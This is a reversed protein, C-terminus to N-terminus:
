DHAQEKEFRYFADHLWGPMSASKLLQFEEETLRSRVMEIKRGTVGEEGLYWLANLAVGPKGALALKRSNVKKLTVTMGQLHFTRGPGDTYYITKMPVQTSFGMQRAAESGQVQINAGTQRALVEAIAMPKPPVAGVYASKKPKVYVGRVPRTLVGEKVLRTLAQDVAARSGHGLFESTTYPTGVELQGVKERINQTTTM